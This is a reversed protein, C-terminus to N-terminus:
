KPKRRTSSMLNDLRWPKLFQQWQEKVQHTVTEDKAAAFQQCLHVNLFEDFSRVDAENGMSLDRGFSLARLAPAMFDTVKEDSLVASSKSKADQVSHMIKQVELQLRIIQLWQWAWLQPRGRALYSQAQELVTLGRDFTQRRVHPDREWHEGTQYDTRRITQADLLLCEALHLLCIGLTSYDSGRSPRGIAARAEDLFMYGLAFEGNLYAARARLTNLRCAYRNSDRDLWGTYEQLAVQGTQYAKRAKELSTASADATSSYWWAGFRNMELRMKSIAIRVRLDNFQQQIASTRDKMWNKVNHAEYEVRELLEVIRSVKPSDNKPSLTEPSAVCDAIEILHDLMRLWNETISDLEPRGNAGRKSPSEVKGLLIILGQVLVEEQVDPQDIKDSKLEPIQGVVNQWDSKGIRDPIQRMRVKIAEDYRSAQRLAEAELECFSRRLEQLTDSEEEDDRRLCEHTRLHCLLPVLEGVHVHSLLHDRERKLVGILGRRRHDRMTPEAIRLSLVRQFLYELLVAPDHSSRFLSTYYFTAAVDHIDTIADPYEKAARAYIADRVLSHMWYFGGEQGILLGCDSLSSLIRDVEERENHGVGRDWQATALKGIDKAMSGVEIREQILRFGIRRLVVLDRRRRFVSSIVLIPKVADHRLNDSDYGSEKAAMAILRTLFADLDMGDTMVSLRSTFNNSACPVSVVNAVQKLQDIETMDGSQWRNVNYPALSIMLESEGFQDRKNALAVLLKLLRLRENTLVDPVKDWYGNLEPRHPGSKGYIWYSMGFEGISDIALVYKGRQLAEVIWDVRSDKMQGSQDPLIAFPPLRPDYRRFRNHLYTCLSDVTAISELDCWIVVYDSPFAETARALASSTGHGAETCDFVHVKSSSPKFQELQRDMRPRPPMQALARYLSTSVPHATTLRCYLEQLFRGPNRYNVVLLSADPELCFENALDKLQGSADEEKERLVWLVRTAKSQGLSNGTRPTRLIHELLSMVRRDGGGYGLVLILANQPFYETSVRLNDDSLQFGLSGSMRRAFAGGHLKVLSLHDKILSSHPVPGQEPLEYVRPDLSQDRLAEEILTDFNTTLILRWDMLATLYAVFHHSLAPRRGREFREFFQDKLVQSDGCLRELRFLWRSVGLEQLAENLKERKNKVSPQAKQCRWNLEHPDPWGHVMLCERIANIRATPRLATNRLIGAFHDEVKDMYETMSATVPIGAGVSIGSGFLPVVRRGVKWAQHIIEWAERIDSVFENAPSERRLHPGSLATTMIVGWFTVGALVNL